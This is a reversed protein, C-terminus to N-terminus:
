DLIECNAARAGVSHERCTSVGGGLVLAVVGHNLLVVIDYVGVLGTHLSVLVEVSVVIVREFGLAESGELRAGRLGDLLYRLAVVRVGGKNGM